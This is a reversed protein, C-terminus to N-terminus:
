VLDVVYTLEQYVDEIDFLELDAQDTVVYVGERLMTPFQSVQKMQLPWNPMPFTLVLVSM